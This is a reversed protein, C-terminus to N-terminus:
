GDRVRSLYAMAMKLGDSDFAPGAQRIIAVASRIQKAELHTMGDLRDVAEDGAVLLGKLKAEMREKDGKEISYRLSEIHMSLGFAIAQEHDAQSAELISQTATNGDMQRVNSENSTEGDGFINSAGKGITECGTSFVIIALVLLSMTLIKPNM